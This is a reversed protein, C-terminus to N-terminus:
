KYREIIINLLGSVYGAASAFKVISKDIKKNNMTFIAAVFAMFAGFIKGIIKLSFHLWSAFLGNNSRYQLVNNIAGTFHRFFLYRRTRREELVTEYIIADKVWIHKNGFKSSRDFFHFDEGGTFNYKKDFWLNQNQILSSKFMVNGAAVHRPVHGTSFKHKIKINDDPILEYVPVVPGTTVDANYETIADTHKELWDAAPFEDDDIFCILLPNFKLAEQILRNRANSIGRNPECFYYLPISSKNKITDCIAKASENVDNDVVIVISKYNAPVNLANIKSLCNKLLESRNYTAVCIVITKEVNAM